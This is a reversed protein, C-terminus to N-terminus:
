GRRAVSRAGARVIPLVRPGVADDRAGGAPPARRLRLWDLASQDGSLAAALGRLRPLPRVASCRKCSQGDAARRRLGSSCRRELGAAALVYALVWARREGARLRRDPVAFSAGGRRLGYACWALVM